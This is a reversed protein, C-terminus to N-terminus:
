LRDRRADRELKEVYRALERLFCPLRGEAAVFERLHRSPYMAVSENRHMAGDALSEILDVAVSKKEISDDDIM